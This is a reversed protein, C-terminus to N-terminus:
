GPLPERRNRDRLVAVRDSVAVIEDLEEKGHLAALESNLEVHINPKTQLQQILYHSMSKALADARVLLTVNQAHNALFMAAQGASNGAGVIAVDWTRSM